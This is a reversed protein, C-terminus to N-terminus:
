CPLENTTSYETNFMQFPTTLTQGWEQIVTWSKTTASWRVFAEEKDLTMVSMETSSRYELLITPRSPQENIGTGRILPPSNVCSNVKPIPNVDHM